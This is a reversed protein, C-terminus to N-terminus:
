VENKKRPLYTGRAIKLALLTELYYNKLAVWTDM